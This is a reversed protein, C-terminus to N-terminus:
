RPRVSARSRRRMQGLMIIGALLHQVTRPEPVAQFEGYYLLSYNGSGLQYVDFDLRHSGGVLNTWELLGFENLECGVPGAACFQDLVFNPPILQIGDLLVGATDDAWVRMQGRYASDPLVFVETFRTVTGNPPYEGGPYSVFCATPPAYGTTTGVCVNAGRNNLESSDAASGSSQIVVPSAAVTLHALLAVFCFRALTV